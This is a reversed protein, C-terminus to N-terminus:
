HASTNAPEFSTGCGCSRTANPNNIKFGTDNLTDAYDIEVGRLWDASERDILVLAGDSRIETDGPEPHQSEDGGAAHGRLRRSSFACAM